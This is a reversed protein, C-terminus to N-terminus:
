LVAEFVHFVMPGMQCTAIYKRPRNPMAEGTGYMEIVRKEMTAVSNEVLAWLCVAQRQPQVCLFTAGTPVVIEQLTSVSLTYKWIVM